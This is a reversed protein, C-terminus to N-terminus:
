TTMLMPKEVRCHLRSRAYFCRWNRWRPLGTLPWNGEIDVGTLESTRAKPGCTGFNLIRRNGAIDVAYLEPHEQLHREPSFPSDGGYYVGGSANMGVGGLLRVGKKEMGQGSSHLAAICRM